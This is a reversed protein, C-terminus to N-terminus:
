SYWRSSNKFSSKYTIGLFSKGDDDVAINFRLGNLPEISYLFGKFSEYNSEPISIQANIGEHAVYIRGFVNLELLKKYLHDRFNKPDDIHFYNYFSITVRKETEQLMKQKLEENSIRNHLVAM